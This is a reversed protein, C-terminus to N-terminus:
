GETRLDWGFVEGAIRLCHSIVQAGIDVGDQGVVGVPRELRQFCTLRAYARETGGPLKNTDGSTLTIPWSRPAGQAVVVDDFEPFPLRRRLRLLRQADWGPDDDHEAREDDAADAIQHILAPANM